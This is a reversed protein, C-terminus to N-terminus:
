NTAPGRRFAVGLVLASFVLTALPGDGWRAFITPPLAPPLPADMIGRVGLGLHARVRGYGDVVASIGTNAARVLPLGEEVARMRASAFHQYPGSSIGFWADNTVNLLWSPRDKPDTVNGPFIAEYCILPGVPPLSSLRLTRPGPGASFDTTGHTIKAFALISRLPVYEGFPVLHFKDYGGRIRGAEDVAQLANWIQAPRGTSPIARLTGTLVLGGPPVAAAITERAETERGLFFPTATEPWVIHTPPPDTKQSSMELYRTFQAVRLDPRWKHNQSINPQVLRLLVGSVDSGDIPGLRAAGGVWMAGLLGAAVAVAMPGTRGRNALLAPSTSVALTVLSLGFVGTVSAFQIMPVSFVWVSGLPNWPFGTLIEGRTWEMVVWAAALALIRGPGTPCVIRAILVAAAIFLALGASLGGVAFPILWGFKEPDTLLAFAIWYVGAVFYGFGFWWGSDFSARWTRAADLQWMLLTFAVPLVPVAHVPPLAAAALAGMTLSLAHRRWGELGAVRDAFTRWIGAGPSFRGTM